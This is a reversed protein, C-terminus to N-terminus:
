NSETGDSEEEEITEDSEEELEGYVKELYMYDSDTIFTQPKDFLKMDQHSFEISYKRLMESYETYDVRGEVEKRDQIFDWDEVDLDASRDEYGEAVAYEVIGMPIYDGVRIFVEEYIAYFTDSKGLLQLVYCEDDTDYWKETNPMLTYGYLTDFMNWIDNYVPEYELITSVWAEYTESYIYVDYQTTGEIEQVAREEWWESLISGDINLYTYTRRSNDRAATLIYEEVFNDRGDVQLLQDLTLKAYEYQMVAEKSKDVLETIDIDPDTVYKWEPTTLVVASIVICFLAFLILASVLIHKNTLKGKSM